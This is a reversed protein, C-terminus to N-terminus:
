FLVPWTLRAEAIFILEHASGLNDKFFPPLLIELVEELPDPPQVERSFFKFSSISMPQMRSCKQPCNNLIFVYNKEAVM